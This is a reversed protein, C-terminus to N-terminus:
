LSRWISTDLAVFLIKCVVLDLAVILYMNMAVVLTSMVVNCELQWWPGKKSAM